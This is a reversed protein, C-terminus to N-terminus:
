RSKPSRFKKKIDRLGGRLGEASRFLGYLLPRLPYDVSGPRHIIVGGFGTKFRYLGAMPHRPNDDPAIGFLDYVRCGAAKADRIAQWQLAYPAMLNRKHGASAGYLYTGAEGRFLTIVAAIAEGEHRALYLRLVADKQKAAEEFLGRYYESGHIAIRDRRATERYLAYFTDLGGAGAEELEVGKKGALGINYRWKPKMRALLEAGSLGLDVLV